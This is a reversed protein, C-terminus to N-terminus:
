SNPIICKRTIYQKVYNEIWTHCSIIKRYMEKTPVHKDFNTNIDSEFTEYIENVDIKNKSANWQVQIYVKSLDEKLAMVDLYKFSRYKIKQKENAPTIDNIVTSIM